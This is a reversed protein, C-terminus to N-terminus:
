EAAEALAPRVRLKRFRASPFRAGLKRAQRLSRLEALRRREFLLRELREELMALRAPEGIAARRPPGHALGAVITDGLQRSRMAGRLRQAEDLLGSALMAEMEDLDALAGEMDNPRPAAAREDFYARARPGIHAAVAAAQVRLVPEPSALAIRLTELYEPHFHRAIRGLVTQREGLSGTLMIAPYSAPSPGDLQLARGIRVDACLREEPAVATSAAIREYWQAILPSPRQGQKAAALWLLGAGLPGLPGTAAGAILALLLYTTDSGRRQTAALLAAISLLTLIHVLVLGALSPVSQRALTMIIGAEAIAMAVLLWPEFGGLPVAPRPPSGGFVLPPASPTDPK